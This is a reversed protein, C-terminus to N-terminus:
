GRQSDCDSSDSSSSDSDFFGLDGWCAGATIDEQTRWGRSRPPLSEWVYDLGCARLAMGRAIHAGLARHVWQLKQDVVTQFKLGTNCFAAERRAINIALVMTTHVTEPHLKGLTTTVFPVLTMNKTNYALGHKQLKANHATQLTRPADAHSPPCVCTVDIIECRQDSSMKTHVDGCKATTAHCPVNTMNSPICGSWM